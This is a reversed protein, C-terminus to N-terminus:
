NDTLVIQTPGILNATTIAPIPLGAIIDTVQVNKMNITFM